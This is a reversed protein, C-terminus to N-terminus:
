RIKQSAVAKDPTTPFGDPTPDLSLLLTQLFYHILMKWLSSFNAQSVNPYAQRRLETPLANAQNTFPRLNLEQRLNPRNKGRQEKMKIIFIIIISMISLNFNIIKEGHKTVKVESFCELLSKEGAAPNIM